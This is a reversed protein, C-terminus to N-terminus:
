VLNAPVGGAIRERLPMQRLSPASLTIDDVPAPIQEIAADDKRSAFPTESKQRHSNRILAFLSELHGVNTESKPVSKGNRRRYFAVSVLYRCLTNRCDPVNHHECRRRRVAKLDARIIRSQKSIPM